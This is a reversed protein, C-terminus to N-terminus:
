IRGTRGAVTQPLVGSEALESFVPSGREGLRVGSAVGEVSYRHASRLRHGFVSAAGGDAQARSRAQASLETGRDAQGGSDLARGQGVICGISDVVQDTGDQAADEGLDSRWQCSLRLPSDLNGSNVSLNKLTARLSRFYSFVILGPAMMVGRAFSSSFPAARVPNDACSRLMQPLDLPCV